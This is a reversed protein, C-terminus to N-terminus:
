ARPHATNYVEKMRETTVHTYIQTNSISAHGLLEQVVRLDAGKELLKTAFSHRFVHPTVAKPLEIKHVVENIALRVSQTQLRFGTNNVFLPDQPTPNSLDKDKSLMPRVTKMYTELIDKARHSVLVIREKSGKGFVKIEDNDLNLHEFDLNALESVRMGTAYLLELIAKNRFGAPTSIDVSNLIKEIEAETLFKPLSRTRKPIRLASAPNIDVARERYLYRYFSRIASIKRALTTRTYNFKQIFLVYERIKAYTVKELAFDGLWILFSTVDGDYALITHASFNREVELYALFDKLHQKSIENM